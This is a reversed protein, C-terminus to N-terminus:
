CFRPSVAKDFKLSTKYSFDNKHKGLNNRDTSIWQKYKISDDIIYNLLLYEKLFSHVVSQEPCSDCHHLTCDSNETSCICLKLIDKYNLSPNIHLMLKVNQHYTCIYVNHSGAIECASSQDCFCQGIYTEKSGEEKFRSVTNQSINQMRFIRAFYKATQPM